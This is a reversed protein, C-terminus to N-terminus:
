TLEWCASGHFATRLLTPAELMDPVVLNISSFVLSDIADGVVGDFSFAATAAAEDGRLIPTVVLRDVAFLQVVGLAAVPLCPTVRCPLTEVGHVGLVAVAVRSDLNHSQAAGHLESM